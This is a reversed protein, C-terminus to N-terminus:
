CLQGTLVASSNACSFVVLDTVFLKSRLLDKPRVTVTRTVHSAPDLYLCM